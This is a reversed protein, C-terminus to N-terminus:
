SSFIASSLFLCIYVLFDTFIMTSGTHGANHPIYSYIVGRTGERGGRVVNLCSILNWRQLFNSKNLVLAHFHSCSGGSM